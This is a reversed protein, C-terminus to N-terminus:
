NCNSKQVIKRLEKVVNIQSLNLIISLVGPNACLRKVINKSSYFEKMAWYQGYQLEEPSLNKPTFVVHAADYHSWNYDFIRNQEKFTQFLPTGPYPVLVGFNAANLRADKAFQVTNKFVDPTDFEFGFIFAGHVLIGTSKIKSIQSIFTDACNVHKRNSVLNKEDISEFGIFLGVCGSAAALGLLEDDTAISISCQSFWKIKLPILERFFEKAFDRNGVINDDVFVLPMGSRKFGKIEEIIADIERTRYEPGYLKKVLCFECSNPCGRSVLVTNRVMYGKKPFLDRSINPLRIPCMIEDTQYIRKTRGLKFDSLFTGWTQESEGQFISDAHLLCEDPLVTPHVGGMVVPVGLARYQDALTFAALAAPTSVTMAVLDWNNDPTIETINGDLFGVHYDPPTLGALIGIGLPPALYRKAMKGVPPAVFLLKM